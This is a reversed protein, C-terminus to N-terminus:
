PLRGGILYEVNAKTTHKWHPEPERPIQWLRASRDRLAEMEVDFTVLDFSEGNERGIDLVRRFKQAARARAPRDDYHEVIVLRQPQSSKMM